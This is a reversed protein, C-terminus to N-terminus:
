RLAKKAVQQMEEAQISPNPTHEDCVDGLCEAFSWGEQKAALRCINKAQTLKAPSCRKSDPMKQPSHLPIPNSFMDESSSVGHGFRKHLDQGQDDQAVGNFNGCVGDQGGQKPMTIKANMFNPWRNVQIIVDQPLSMHVVKHPLFAMAQDVLDGESDFTIRGGGCSTEGFNELISQGDCEISGMMSDVQIKHTGMFSGSVILSTMSSYDTRDNQKTWDTAQFRGQIKIADSKVIWFDGESYFVSRSKDFTSVHPDGWLTCAKALLKPKTTTTTTCGKDHHECCWAVKEGSWVSQWNSYGEECDFPDCALKSRACCWKKKPASWGLEWNQYGAKCDYPLTTTTTTCGKM